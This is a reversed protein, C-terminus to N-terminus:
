GAVAKSLSEALKERTVGYPFHTVYEGERNMLYMFTSHDMLYEDPSSAGDAKTYFVRYASAAAKIEVETGTLGVMRPGFNAVYRGVQEVTDRKPDITVFIPVIQEAKPGLDDLASAIVQLEAPCIDPCYTYGFAVLMYKGRFNQESVREGEHNTLEFPGGILAKGSHRVGSQMGPWMAFAALAGVAFAILIILPLRAPM